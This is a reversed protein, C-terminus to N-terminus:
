AKDALAAVLVPDAKGDRIAIATLTQRVAEGVLDDEVVPLYALLVEAAGEPKRVALIRAAAAVVASSSGTEIHKLCEQARRVVEIDESKTAQKLLPVAAAGTAVLQASAKQRLEFSDDGLDRILQGIRELDTNSITRKRFFELLSPGDVALRAEKLVREDLAAADPEDARVRASACTLLAVALGPLIVIRRM